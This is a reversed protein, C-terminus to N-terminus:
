IDVWVLGYNEVRTCGVEIEQTLASKMEDHDAHPERKAALLHENGNQLESCSWQDSRLPRSLAMTTFQTSVFM